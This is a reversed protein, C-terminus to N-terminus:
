ENANLQEQNDESADHGDEGDLVNEHEKAGFLRELEFLAYEKGVSAHNTAGNCKTQRYLRVVEERLVVKHHGAHKSKDNCRRQEETREHRENGLAQEVWGFLRTALM